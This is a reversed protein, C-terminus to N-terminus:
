VDKNEEKSKKKYLRGEQAWLPTEQFYSPGIDFSTWAVVQEIRYESAFPEYVMTWYKFMTKLAESDEKTMYYSTYDQTVDVQLHDKLFNIYNHYPTRDKSINNFFRSPEFYNLADYEDQDGDLDELSYLKLDVIEYDQEKYSEQIMQKQKEVEEESPSPHPKHILRGNDNREYYRSDFAQSVETRGLLNIQLVTEQLNPVGDNEFRGGMERVVFVSADLLRSLIVLKDEELTLDLDGYWVKELAHRYMEPDSTFRLWEKNQELESERALISGFVRDFINPSILLEAANHNKYHELFWTFSRLIYINSNFVTIHDPNNHHYAGKSGLIRGGMSGFVAKVIEATKQDM